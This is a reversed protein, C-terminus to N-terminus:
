AEKDMEKDVQYAEMKQQFRMIMNKGQPHLQLDAECASRGDDHDKSVKLRTIEDETVQMQFHQQKRQMKELIREMM